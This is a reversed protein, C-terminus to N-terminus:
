GTEAWAEVREILDAKRGSTGLGLSSLAEKLEPVTMKSTIGSKVSRKLGAVDVVRPAISGMHVANSATSKARKKVAGMDDDRYERKTGMISINLAKADGHLQEVWDQIYGGARNNIAKYRPLTADDPQDPVEEELALAQLIRYHWQLAPNPYKFPNYMAKPLQLQQVVTRMKRTLEEGARLPEKPPEPGDRLDDAFPLQYLWLGAPLFPTGSDTQEGGTPQSQSPLIAVLIPASNSRAVFWAVGMKESDILKQWLASFVRRSGVYYDESPFIFVPKKVAAWFPLQSRPKFGILRLIPSGFNKIRKQEESLFHVFEGGFKYAKKAETQEVTRATDEAMRVTESVALQPTEGDLWIYCTRAPKQPHIINYGKVSICLGPAIEFPVNSFMARKATQKSNINSILSAILSLGDGSKCKNVRGLGEEQDADRYIIDEYFKAPDFQADGRSIPFLEIVVGLDYLDKARVAASSRAQKDTAHPNDNDTIIFLRRSGFNAARTTFIQNACFLVNSMAAPEKSPALVHEADDADEVLYKLTKVDEAAPIGLNTFLYCHPYPRGEDQFKSKETGFLLIGIMDRPNSIIRQQMVRYASKLAAIVASDRDAKKSTSPPPPELMSDSVEIAFLIADKQTKYDQVQNSPLAAVQQM